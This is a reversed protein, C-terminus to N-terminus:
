LGYRSLYSSVSRPVRQMAVSLEDEYCHNVVGSQALKSLASLREAEDWWCVAQLQEVGYTIDAFSDAWDGQDRILALWRAVASVNNRFPSQKVTTSLIGARALELGAKRRGELWAVDARCFLLSQLAQEHLIASPCAELQAEFGGAANFDGLLYCAEFAYFVSNIQFFDQPLGHPVARLAHRRQRESDALDRYCSALAGHATALSTERELRSLIGIAEEYASIAEAYRGARRHCLGIGTLIRSSRANAVTYAKARLALVGLREYTTESQELRDHTHHTLYVIQTDWELDDDDLWNSREAANAAELLAAALSRSDTVQALTGALRLARLRTQPDTTSDSICTYALRELRLVDAKTAENSGLLARGALCEASATLREATFTSLLALSEDWRSQEQLLEALM